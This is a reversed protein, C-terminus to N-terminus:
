LGSLANQLEMILDKVIQKEAPSLQGRNSWLTLLQTRRELAKLVHGEKSLLIGTAQEYRVADATGGNGIKAGIRYLENIIGKLKPNTVQGLLAARRTMLAISARRLGSLIGSPGVAGVWEPLVM